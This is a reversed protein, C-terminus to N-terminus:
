MVYKVGKKVVIGHYSDGVRQGSLNYVSNDTAENDVKNQVVTIGTTGGMLTIEDGAKTPIDYLYTDPLKTDPIKSM